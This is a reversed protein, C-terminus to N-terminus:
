NNETSFLITNCLRLLFDLIKRFRLPSSGLDDVDVLAIFNNSFGNSKGYVLLELFAVVIKQFSRFHFVLAKFGLSDFSLCPKFFSNLLCLNFCLFLGVLSSPGLDQSDNLKQSKRPMAPVILATVFVFILGNLSNENKHITTILTSDISTELKSVAGLLRDIAKLNRTLIYGEM